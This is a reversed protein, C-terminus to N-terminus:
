LQMMTNYLAAVKECDTTYHFSSFLEMHDPLKYAMDRQQQQQRGDSMRSVNVIMKSTKIAVLQPSPTSTSPLLPLAHDNEIPVSATAKDQPSQSPTAETVATSASKSINPTKLPTKISHLPSQTTLHTKVISKYSGDTAASSLASTSNIQPPHLLQIAQTVTNSAALNITPTSVATTHSPSPIGDDVSIEAEDATKSSISSGWTNENEAAKYQSWNASTPLVTTSTPATPQQMTSTTSELIPSATTPSIPQHTYENDM